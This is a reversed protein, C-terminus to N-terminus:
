ATPPSNKPALLILQIARPPGVQTTVRALFPLAAGAIFTRVFSHVARDRRHPAAACHDHGHGAEDAAAISTGAKATRTVPTTATASLSPGAEVLEGHEACRVHAAFALHAYGAVQGAMAGLALVCAVARAAARRSPAIRPLLSM